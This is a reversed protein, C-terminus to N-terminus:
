IFTGNSVPLIGEPILQEWSYVIVDTNEHHNRLDSITEVSVLMHHDQEPVSWFWRNKIESEAIDYGCVNLMMAWTCINAEGRPAWHRCSQKWETGNHFWKSSQPHFFGWFELTKHNLFCFVFFQRTCIQGSTNRLITYKYLWTIQNFKFKDWYM